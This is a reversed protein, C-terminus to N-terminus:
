SPFAADTSLLRWGYPNGGHTGGIGAMKGMEVMKRGRLPHDLHSGRMRASCGCGTPTEGVRGGIGAMEVMEVM